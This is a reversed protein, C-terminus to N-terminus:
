DLYVFFSGFIYIQRTISCMLYKGSMNFLFVIIIKEFVAANGWSLYIGAILTCFTFIFSLLSGTTFLVGKVRLCMEERLAKLPMHEQCSLLYYDGDLTLEVCSKKDETLVQLQQPSYQNDKL